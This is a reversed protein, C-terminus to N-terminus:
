LDVSCWVLSGNYLLSGLINIRMNLVFLYTIKSMKSSLDPWFVCNRAHLHVAQVKHLIAKAFLLLSSSVIRSSIYAMMLPSTVAYLGIHDRWSQFLLRTMLGGQVLQLASFTRNLTQVLRRESARFPLM